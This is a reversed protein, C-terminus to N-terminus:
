FNQVIEGGGDYAKIRAFAGNFMTLQPPLHGIDADYIIPINLEDGIRTFADTKSFDGTDSYGETRGYIIGNCNVFYGSEKMQWLTRYISSANMECSELFWVIGDKKNNETFKKINAYPTGFVSELVDLCGGILRGSFECPKKNITKWKVIEKKDYPNYGNESLKPWKKQYCEQNIQKIERDSNQLFNFTAFVSPDRSAFDLFNPGHVTVIDLKLTFVFLLLSIDSFGMIWKPTFSALEDFDILPLIEMLFEGGWPPIIASVRDDEYLNMFEELREESGASTCKSNKRLSDTEKVIYGYEHFISEAYELKKIFLDGTVGSSPACVGIVDGPKISNPIKM